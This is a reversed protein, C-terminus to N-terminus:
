RMRTRGSPASWRGARHLSTTIPRESDELWAWLMPGDMVDNKQGKLWRDWWKV